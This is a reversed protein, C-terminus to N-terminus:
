LPGGAGLLHTAWAPDHDDTPHERAIADILTADSTVVDGGPCEDVARYRRAESQTAYQGGFTPRHNLNAYM